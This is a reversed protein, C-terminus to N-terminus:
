EISILRMRNGVAAEPIVAPVIQRKAPVNAPLQEVDQRLLIRATGKSKGAGRQSYIEGAKQETDRVCALNSESVCILIEPLSNEITENLIVPPARHSYSVGM